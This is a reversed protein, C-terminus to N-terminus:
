TVSLATHYSATVAAHHRGTEADTIVGQLQFAFTPRFSRLKDTPVSLQFSSLTARAPEGAHLVPRTPLFICEITERSTSEIGGGGGGGQGKARGRPPSDRAGGRNPTTREEEPRATGNKGATGTTTAKSDATRSPTSAKSRYQDLLTDLHAATPTEGGSNVWTHVAAVCLNALVDAGTMIDDTSSARFPFVIVGENVTVVLPNVDAAEVFKKCGPGMVGAHAMLASWLVHDPFTASKVIEALRQDSLLSTKAAVAM